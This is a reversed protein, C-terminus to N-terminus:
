EGSGELEKKVKMSCDERQASWLLREIQSM